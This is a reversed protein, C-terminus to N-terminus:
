WGSFFMGQSALCIHCHGKVAKLQAFFVCRLSALRPTWSLSNPCPAACEWLLTEEVGGPHTLPARFVGGGLSADQTKQPIELLGHRDSAPAVKEALCWISM